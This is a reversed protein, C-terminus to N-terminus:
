TDKKDKLILFATWNQNHPHRVTPVHLSHPSFDNQKICSYM